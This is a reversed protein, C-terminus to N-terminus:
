YMRSYCELDQNVTQESSKLTLKIKINDGNQGVSKAPLSVTFTSKTSHAVWTQVTDKESTKSLLLVGSTNQNGWDDLGSTLFLTGETQNKLSIVARDNSNTEMPFCTFHQSALTTQSFIFFFLLFISLSKM